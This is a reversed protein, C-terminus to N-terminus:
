FWIYKKAGQRTITQLILCIEKFLDKSTGQSAWEGHGSYVLTGEALKVGSAAQRGRTGM